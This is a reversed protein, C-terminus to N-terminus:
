ALSPAHRLIDKLLQQLNPGPEIGASQVLRRRTKYFIASAEAQRGSRYLALMLQSCLRERLPHEVLLGELEAVVHTHRGLALELDLCDELAQLRVENLRTV